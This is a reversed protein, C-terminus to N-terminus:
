FNPCGLGRGPRNKAGQLRFSLTIGGIGYWDNFPGGRVYTVDQPEKITPDSLTAALSGNGTLVDLYNVEINTIDDLYDNFLKRAGFEMGLSWAQHFTFKLGLGFPVAIQTLSYPAEYGALGQGETGLPQLDIWNNDYLTQPNFRYVAAGGFLYPATVVKARAGGLQFPSFEATLALETINSRFNRMRDPYETNADNGSVKAQSIGARLSLFKNLNFRGFAGFAPHLENLYGNLDAPSMDGSYLSVGGMLGIETSQAQLQFTVCGAFLLAFLQFKKM